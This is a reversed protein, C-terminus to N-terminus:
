ARDSSRYGFLIAVVLLLFAFMALPGYDLRSSQSAANAPRIQITTNVLVEAMTLDGVTTVTTYFLSEKSDTTTSAVQSQSSFVVPTISIIALIGAILM